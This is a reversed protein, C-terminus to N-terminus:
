EGPTRPISYTDDEADEASAVGDESHRLMNCERLPHCSGESNSESDTNEPTALLLDYICELDQEMMGMFRSSELMMLHGDRRALEREFLAIADRM